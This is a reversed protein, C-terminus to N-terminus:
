RRRLKKFCYQYGLVLGLSILVGGIIDTIWHVGSVVRGIVMFLLFSITLIKASVKLTKNKIRSNFQMIATPMVCVVLLTTSSPYSVELVGNILVPRYNVVVSEFLVYVVGVLVYFAGLLLIDADVKSLKKRKLLQILGMTAFALVVLVPILGLWDTIVYLSRNYGTLAHAWENLIAFGVSSDNPGIARVNVLKVLVTWLIFALLFVASWFGTSPLKFLKEENLNKM